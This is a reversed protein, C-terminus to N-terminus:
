WGAEELQRETDRKLIQRTSVRPHDDWWTPSVNKVRYKGNTGRNRLQNDGFIRVKYYWRPYQKRAM